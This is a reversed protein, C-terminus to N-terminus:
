VSNVGQGNVCSGVSSDRRCENEARQSESVSARRCERVSSLTRWRRCERSEQVRQEEVREVSRRGWPQM